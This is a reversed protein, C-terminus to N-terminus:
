NLNIVELKHIIGDKEEKILIDQDICDKLSDLADMTKIFHENESEKISLESRHKLKEYKKM